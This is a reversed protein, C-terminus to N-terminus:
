WTADWEMSPVTRGTIIVWCAGAAIDIHPMELCTPSRGVAFGVGSVAVVSNAFTRRVFELPPDWGGPSKRRSDAFRQMSLHSIALGIM